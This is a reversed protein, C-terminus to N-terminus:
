LSLPHCVLSMGSERAMMLSPRPGLWSEVGTAEVGAAAEPVDEADLAKMGFYFTEWVVQFATPEAKKQM